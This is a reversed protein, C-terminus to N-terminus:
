LILFTSRHPLGRKAFGTVFINSQQPANQTTIRAVSTLSLEWHVATVTVLFNWLDNFCEKSMNVESSTPVM